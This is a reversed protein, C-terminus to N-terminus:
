LVEKSRSAMVVMQGLKIGVVNGAKTKVRLQINQPLDPMAITEAQTLPFLFSGQEESYEIEGASLSKCYKGVTIEVDAFSDATAPTGDATIIEVPIEYQDGQMITTAIQM